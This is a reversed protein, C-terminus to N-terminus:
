KLVLRRARVQKGNVLFGVTENGGLIREIDSHSHVVMRAFLPPFQPHAKMFVSEICNGFKRIIHEKLEEKTVHHGRSFTLFLSRDTSHVSLIEPPQRAAQLALPQVSNPPVSHFGEHRNSFQPLFLHQHQPQLSKKPPVIDSFVRERPLFGHQHQPQLSKKPPVIDSFARECVNEMFGQIGSIMRQRNEYIFGFSFDPSILGRILPVDMDPPLSGEKNLFFLCTSAEIALAHLSKDPLPIMKNVFYGYRTSELLNWFGLVKKCQNPDLGLDIVLRAYIKRDIKHFEKFKELGLWSAM